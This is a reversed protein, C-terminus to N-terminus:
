EGKEFFGVPFKCGAKTEDDLCLLRGTASFHFDFSLPAESASESEKFALIKPNAGLEVVVVVVVVFVIGVEDEEFGVAVVGGGAEEVEVLAIGLMESDNVAGDDDEVRSVDVVELLPDISAVELGTLDDEDEDEVVELLPQISAVELGM